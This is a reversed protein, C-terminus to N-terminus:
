RVYYGSVRWHGHKDLMPTVTEIARKKNAFRTQYQIVVYQGDPAGPLETTYHVAKVERSLVKGLPARVAAVADHWQEKTVAKQFFAAAQDYSADYKGQDVLALWSGAAQKAAAEARDDAQLTGVILLGVLAILPSWDTVRM